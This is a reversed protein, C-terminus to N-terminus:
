ISFGPLKSGADYVARTANVAAALNEISIRITAPDTSTAIVDNAKVIDKLLDGLEPASVVFTRYQTQFAAYSNDLEVASTPLQKTAALIRMTAYKEETCARWVSIKTTLQRDKAPLRTALSHVTENLKTRYNKAANHLQIAQTEVSIAQFAKQALGAVAIYAQAQPLPIAGAIAQSSKVLDDVATNADATDKVIADFAKTYAKLFKYDQDQKELIAVEDRAISRAARYTRAGIYKNYNPNDTCTLKPNLYRLIADQKITDEEIAQDLSATTTFVGLLGNAGSSASSISKPDVACGCLLATAALAAIVRFNM